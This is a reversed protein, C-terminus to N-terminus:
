AHPGVSFTLPPADSYDDSHWLGSLGYIIFQIYPFWGIVLLPSALIRGVLDRRLSRLDAYSVSIEEGSDGSDNARIKMKLQSIRSSCGLFIIVYILLTVVGFLYSIVQMESHELYGSINSIKHLDYDQTVEWFLDMSPPLLTALFLSLLFMWNEFPSVQCHRESVTLLRRKKSWIDFIILFVGFYGIVLRMMNVILSNVGITTANFARIHMMAFSPLELVLLTLVIAYTGDILPAWLHHHFARFSRM